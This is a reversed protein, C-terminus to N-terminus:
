GSLVLSSLGAATEQRTASISPLTLPSSSIQLTPTLPTSILKLSLSQIGAQVWEQINSM